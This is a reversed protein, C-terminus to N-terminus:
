AFVNERKMENKIENKTEGGGGGAYIIRIAGGTTLRLVFTCARLTELTTFAMAVTRRPRVPFVGRRRRGSVRVEQCGDSQRTTRDRNTKVILRTSQFNVHVTIISKFAYM